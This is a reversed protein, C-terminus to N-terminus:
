PAVPSLPVARETREAPPLCALGACAFWDAESTIPVEVGARDVVRGMKQFRGYRQMLTVAQQGLEAPGTRICLLAYWNAPPHVLYLDVTRGSVGDVDTVQIMREGGKVVTGWREAVARISEVDPAETGFLDVPQMRPEVLLEVDGVLPKRRRVSGVVKCRAVVPALDGSLREALAAADAWPLKTGASM